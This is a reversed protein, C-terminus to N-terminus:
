HLEENVLVSTPLFQKYIECSTRELTRLANAPKKMLLEFSLFMCLETQTELGLGRLCDVVKGLLTESNQRLLYEGQLTGAWDKGSLYRTM